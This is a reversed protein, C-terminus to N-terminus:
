IYMYFYLLIYVHVFTIKYINIYACIHNYIQIYDSIFFLIKYIYVYLSLLVPRLMNTYKHTHTHTLKHKHRYMCCDYNFTIFSFLYNKFSIFAWLSLLTLCWKQEQESLARQRTKLMENTPAGLVPYVIDQWTHLHRCEPTWVWVCLSV